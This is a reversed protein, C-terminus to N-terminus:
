THECVYVPAGLYMYTHVRVYVGTGVLLFSQGLFFFPLQPFAGRLAERVVIQSQKQNEFM